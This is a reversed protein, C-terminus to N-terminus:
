LVSKNTISASWYLSTSGCFLHPYLMHLLSVLMMLTDVGETSAHANLVDAFLLEAAIGGNLMDVPPLQENALNGLLSAVLALFSTICARATSANPTDVHNPNDSPNHNYAKELMQPFLVPDAIPFVQSVESQLYLHLYKEVTARPPLDPFGPKAVDHGPPSARPWAPQRNEWLPGNFADNEETRFGIWKQGERSLFPVGHFMNIDGLKYGACYIRGVKAINPSESLTPKPTGIM